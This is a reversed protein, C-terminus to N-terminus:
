NRIKYNKITKKILNSIKMSETLSYDYFFTLFPVFRLYIKKSLLFRIYHNMKGNLNNIYSEIIEKNNKKNFKNLFTIFIKAYSLDKSIIVKSITILKIRPDEINRNFILSIKKRLEKSIKKTREVKKSM